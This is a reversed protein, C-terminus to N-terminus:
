ASSRPPRRRPWRGLLPQRLGAAEPTYGVEWPLTGCLDPWVLQLLPRHPNRWRATDWRGLEARFDPNEVPILAFRYAAHLGDLVDGARLDAGAQVREGLRDLYQRAAAAPMDLVVLDAHGRLRWLGSTLSTPVDVEPPEVHLV